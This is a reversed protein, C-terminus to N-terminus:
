TKDTEEAYWEEHLSWGECRLCSTWRWQHACGPCRGGTSFTNWSTYCGNFFFEPHGCDLCMWRDSARPQWKCLPCRIRSFDTEEREIEVAKEVFEEPLLTKQFLSYGHSFADFQRFFNQEPFM